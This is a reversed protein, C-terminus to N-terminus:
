EGPAFRRRLLKKDFKGVGTKPVEDVFVFRDPLWFEPFTDRLFGALEGPAPPPDAAVVALPRELWM